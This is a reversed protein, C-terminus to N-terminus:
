HAECGTREEPSLPWQARVRTGSRDQSTLVNFEGGNMEVRERV